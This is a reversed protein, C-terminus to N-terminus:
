SKSINFYIKKFKNKNLPTSISFNKIKEFIEIMM